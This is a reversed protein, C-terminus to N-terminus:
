PSADFNASCTNRVNSALPSPVISKRSNKHARDTVDLPLNSCFSLHANEMYSRSPFPYIELCSINSITVTHVDVLNIYTSLLKRENPNYSSTHKFRLMIYGKHKTVRYEHLSCLNLTSRNNRTLHIRSSPTLM